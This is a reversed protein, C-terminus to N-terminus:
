RKQYKSTIKKKKFRINRRIGAVYNNSAMDNSLVVWVFLASQVCYVTNFTVKTKNHNKKVTFIMDFIM